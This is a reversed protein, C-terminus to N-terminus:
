ERDSRKAGCRGGNYVIAAQPVWNANGGTTITVGAVDVADSLSGGPLSIPTVKSVENSYISQQGSRNYATAAFYYTKDTM